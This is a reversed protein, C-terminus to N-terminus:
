VEKKAIITMVDDIKSTDVEKDKKWMERFVMFPADLKKLMQTLDLTFDSRGPTKFLVSDIGAGTVKTIGDVFKKNACVPGPAGVIRIHQTIKYGNEALDSAIDLWAPTLVLETRYVLFDQYLANQIRFIEDLRKPELCKQEAPRTFVIVIDGWGECLFICDDREFLGVVQSLTEDMAGQPSPFAPEDTGDLLRWNRWYVLREIFILRSSRQSLTVSLFGLITASNSNDLDLPWKKDLVLRFPLAIERRGIFASAHKLALM